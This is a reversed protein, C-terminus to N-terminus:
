LEKEIDKLINDTRDFAEKEWPLEKYPVKERIWYMASTEKWVIGSSSISLDGRSIQEAHIMEHVVVYRSTFIQNDKNAKWDEAVNLHHEEVGKVSPYTTMLGYVNVGMIGMTRILQMRTTRKLALPFGKPLYARKEFHKRVIEFDSEIMKWDDDYESSSPLRAGNRLRIRFKM